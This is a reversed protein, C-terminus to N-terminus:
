LEKFSLVILRKKIISLIYIIYTYKLYVMEMGFKTCGSYFSSFLFFGVFWRILPIQALKHAVCNSKEPVLISHSFVYVGQILDLIVMNANSRCAAVSTINYLPRASSRLTTGRHDHLVFGFRVGFTSFSVDVNHMLVKTLILLSGDITKVQQLVRKCM